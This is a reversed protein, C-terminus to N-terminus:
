VVLLKSEFLWAVKRDLTHRTFTMCTGYHVVCACLVYIVYHSKLGAGLSVRYSVMICLLSVHIAHHPRLQNVLELRHVLCQMAQTSIVLPIYQM